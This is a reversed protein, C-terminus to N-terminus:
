PGVLTVRLHTIESAPVDPEVDITAQGASIAGPGGAARINDHQMLAAFASGQNCAPDLTLHVADVTGPDGGAPLLEFSTVNGCASVSGFGNAAVRPTVDLSAAIAIAASLAVAAAIASWIGRM